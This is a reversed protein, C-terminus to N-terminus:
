VELESGFAGQFAVSSLPERDKRGAVDATPYGFGAVLTLDYGNPVDLVEDAEVSDVTYICSGVGREWALLQMHTVARGADIGGHKYDTCIAVAFDAGAIWSGSPSAAALDALRSEEDVLVFRWHQLNRGSPALRGADLIARKTSDDVPEDTYERIEIRTEIADEVDM